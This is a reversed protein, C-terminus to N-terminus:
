CRRGQLVIFSLSLILMRKTPCTHRLFSNDFLSPIINVLVVSSNPECSRRIFRADNGFTRADVCINDIFLIRERDVIQMRELSSIKEFSDM